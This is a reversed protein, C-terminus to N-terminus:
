RWDSRDIFSSATREKMSSRTTNGDAAPSTLYTIQSFDRTKAYHQKGEALNAHYLAGIFMRTNRAAAATDASAKTPPAACVSRISDSRTSTTIAGPAGDM